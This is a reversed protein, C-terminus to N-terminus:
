GGIEHIAFFINVAVIASMITISMPDHKGGVIASLTLLGCFVAVALSFARRASMRLRKRDKKGFLGGM